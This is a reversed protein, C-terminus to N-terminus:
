VARNSSALCVRFGTLPYRVLRPTEYPLCRLYPKSRADVSTFPSPHFTTATSVSCPYSRHSKNHGIPSVRFFTRDTLCSEVTM